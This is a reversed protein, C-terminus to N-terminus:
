VTNEPAVRQWFHEFRERLARHEVRSLDPDSALVQEAAARARELLRTDFIGELWQMEPLGSQRTGIFDGPGRLELDKEALLFGDDSAVMAELREEGDPSAEDALLLCYSRNSGRGVRGRFQHLQALGFRDAGEIMMVTANPVDIGVEIVSTSVLIDSEHDRFGTMVADKERAKMRGHLTAIKLDPFVELQLREAEEVAAKAEIAESAEVLPCIVFVQRGARVEQRVLDYAAAREMGFYRQTEIPVRGPPREALVSVDLDGNIVLNLTRPIPTATMALQHPLRGEVRDPLAARQRVGFRHQEDVISLALRPLTVGDQIIAHTGVLLDLEGSEARGLIDRRESAKTSGTLLAIRPQDANRLGAYLAGLGALHQEALLETPAMMAAQHGAAVAALMAGAAVATKGSGVDGQLLRTMPKDTQMDKLIAALSSRQAGTLTYPLSSQWRELLDIDPTIAIGNFAQREQKRRVLGMQLLFLDDFALRERAAKLLAQSDPYHVTALAKPLSLLHANEQRLHAPLYDEIAPLAADLAQRTFNRMSKQALGATLPYVPIIRGTSVGSGPVSAHEWEPSTFSLPGYGSELAGSIAIEDGVKIANAIYQNFWTVRVWGTQDALKITVRPQGPGRHVQVDTIRGRVTVEQKERLGLAKGIDITQSYDIHRRPALHLLDGITAVGLKALKKSTAGGAGKLVTVPDDPSRPLVSTLNATRRTTQPTPEAADPELERDTSTVMHRPAQEVPRSRGPAPRPARERAPLKVLLRKLGDATGRLSAARQESPLTAYAELERVRQALDENLRTDPLLGHLRKLSQLATQYSNGGKFGGRWEGRLYDVATELRERAEGPALSSADARVSEPAEAVHQPASSEPM